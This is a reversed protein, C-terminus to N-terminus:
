CNNPRTALLTGGNDLVGAAARFYSDIAPLVSGCRGANIKGVEVKVDAPTMGEGNEKLNTLGDVVDQFKHQTVLIDNADQVSTDTALFTADLVMKHLLENNEADLATSAASTLATGTLSPAVSLFQSVMSTDARWANQADAIDQISQRPTLLPFSTTLTSSLLIILTTPLQYHM